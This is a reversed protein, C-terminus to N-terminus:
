VKLGCSACFATNPQLAAGCSPCFKPTNAPNANPPQQQEQPQPQQQVVPAGCKPCTTADDDIEAGCSACVIDKKINRIEEEYEAIKRLSEDILSCGEKFPEPIDEPHNEYYYKGIQSYNSSIKNKEDSILSNLRVTESLNKAGRVAGQGTESIKKGLDELLGMSKDEDKTIEVLM